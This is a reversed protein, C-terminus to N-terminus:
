QHRMLQALEAVRNAYAWENDYWALVKALGGDLVQTSAADIISSHSDGCFDTSVLAQDCVSMIGHMPGAAAVRFADNIAEADAIRSLQVVLDVLSVNPTPVRISIGDLKGALEPLVIGTAKAAGTTTPIISLAAARARRLDGHPEDLLHQDNTYSHVTTMWGREIGFTEHLVKATPALCNTTCSGASVIFHHIPDYTDANVGPVLTAHAEKGPATILVRKAGAQLHRAAHHLDRFKGTAEVVIEVDLERWPLQAPNAVQNVPIKIGDVVISDGDAEVTGSFRGHVSDWELLHALVRADTVDNIGVVQVDTGRAARLVLRGIRGFGNIGIRVTM